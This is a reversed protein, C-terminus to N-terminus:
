RDAGDWLELVATSSWKFLEDCYHCQFTEVSIPNWTWIQGPVFIKEFSLKEFVFFVKLKLPLGKWSKQQHTTTIQALHIHPSSNNYTDACQVFEQLAGAVEQLSRCAKAYILKEGNLRGAVKSCCPWCFWGQQRAHTLEPSNTHANILSLWCRDLEYTM